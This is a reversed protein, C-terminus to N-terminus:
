QKPLNGLKILINGGKAVSNHELYTKVYPLGNKAVLQIYKVSPSSNPAAITLRKGNPLGIIIKSFLPSCLEYRGSVPDLPYMGMSAFVYWASMQGADDNGSLGGPGDTYEEALVRRVERQTKWPAKTYNYMFPIQHGPENGHWYEGKKFLTDLAAELKNTGGMLAALGPVDHPVYFTYQRPTGETIYSVKKDPEFDKIWTGDDNRGRSLSVSPDFVNKYSASRKMLQQYDRTYNLAKAMMALAYDDYAYELTRSVQEAKHFAEKVPDQLPVYGYKLYSTLARRGKGDVYEDVPPTEFANKYMLSYAQQTNYGKIGKLYASAIFVTSHDGVMENTYNNWCPFIPLWGGQRGKILISNVWDNVLAPDLLEYLPLQARYIDWMSFDDYYKGSTLKATKYQQAFQPYTGDADSFLRPLQMTHYLATYFIRKNKEVGEVRIRALRKEWQAASRQKLAEFSLTAVETDLNKRAEAISTFSTGVRVLLQEGKQLKFGAFAGIGKRNSLTKGTLITDNCFTGSQAFTKVMRMVFYGSFGAPKGSGQYLRYAPNYGYIEQMKANVEIYAKGRDNNPTVLLYLSDTRQMTFRLIGCRESSTVEATVQYRPLNVRYYNPALVEDQHSFVTEYQQVGTQLKGTVPMLTVSGYDQMCSGSIWHTARLGSFSTAKYLYPPVCKQEGVQTQPTWQTMGFPVGVAPITNAYQESGDGHKLAEATTSSATGSLPQVYSLLKVQAALPVYSMNILGIVLFCANLSPKLVGSLKASTRKLM